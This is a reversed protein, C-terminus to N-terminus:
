VIPPIMTAYIKQRCKEAEIKKKNQRTKKELLKKNPLDYIINKKPPPSLTQLEIDSGYFFFLIIEFATLFTFGFYLSLSSGIDIMFVLFPYANGKEITHSEGTNFSIIVTATSSEVEAGYYLDVVYSFVPCKPANECNYSQVIQNIDIFVNQTATISQTFDPSDKDVQVRISTYNDGILEITVSLPNLA